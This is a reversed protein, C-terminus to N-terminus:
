DNRSHAFNYRTIALGITLQNFANAHEGLLLFKSIFNAASAKGADGVAVESATYDRDM